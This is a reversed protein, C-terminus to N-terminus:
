GPHWGTSFGVPKGLDRGAKTRNRNSPPHIREGTKLSNKQPEPLARSNVKGSPLKPIKELVMFDTPIMYDPLNHKLEALIDELLLESNKHPVLYAVLNNDGALDSYAWVFADKCVPSDFLKSNIEDLEVRHGDSRSRATKAVWTTCVAMRIWGAWTGQATNSYAM